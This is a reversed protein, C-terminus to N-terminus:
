STVKITVLQKDKTKAITKIKVTFTDEQKELASLKNDNIKLESNTLLNKDSSNKFVELAINDDKVFQVSYIIEEKNINGNRENSIKFIYEKEEKAKMNAVDISLENNTSTSLVPVVINAQVEDKKTQGLNYAKFGLIITFVLLALFVTVLLLETTDKPILNMFKNNKSNTSKKTKSKKIDKPDIPDFEKEEIKM